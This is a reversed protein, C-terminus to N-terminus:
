HRGRGRPGSALPFLGLLFWRKPWPSCTWSGSCCHAERHTLWSGQGRDGHCRGRDGQWQKGYSGYSIM